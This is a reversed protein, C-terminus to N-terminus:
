VKSGLDANLWSDRDAVYASWREPDSRLAAEAEAMHQFFLDRRLSELAADLTDSMSAERQEALRRLRERQEIGVRITTSGKTM